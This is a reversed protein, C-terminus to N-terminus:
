DVMTAVLPESAMDNPLFTGYTAVEQAVLGIKEKQYTAGGANVLLLVTLVAAGIIMLLGVVGEVIGSGKERRRGAM